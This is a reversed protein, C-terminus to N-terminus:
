SSCDVRRTRGNKDTIEVYSQSNETVTRVSVADSVDLQCVRGNVTVVVKGSSVGGVVSSSSSSSIHVQPSMPGSEPPIINVPPILSIPPIFSVPPTASVPPTLTESTVSSAETSSSRSGASCAAVLTLSAAAAALCVKSVPSTM